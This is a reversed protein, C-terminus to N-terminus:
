DHMDSCGESELSLSPYVGASGIQMSHSLLTQADDIAGFFVFLIRSIVRIALKLIHPSRFQGLCLRVQVGFSHKHSHVALHTGCNIPLRLQYNWFPVIKLLMHPLPARQDVQWLLAHLLALTIPVLTALVQLILLEEDIPLGVDHQLHHLIGYDPFTALLKYGHDDL